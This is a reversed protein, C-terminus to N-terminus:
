GGATVAHFAPLPRHRTEWDLPLWGPSGRLRSERSLGAGVGPVRLMLLPWPDACQVMLPRGELLLPLGDAAMDVRWLHPDAVDELDQVEIVDALVVAGWYDARFAVTAGAVPLPVRDAAPRQAAWRMEWEQYPILRTDREQLM